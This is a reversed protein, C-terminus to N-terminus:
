NLTNLNLTKTINIFYNNIINAIKKEDVIISNKEVLTIKSSNVGKDSFSPKVKEWFVKNDSVRKEDLNKYFSKKTKRLLNLCLNRQCKYKCWNKFNRNKNFINRLKSRVMIQKRLDKTMFTNNHRLFKKKLPAHKNLEKLFVAEFEGYSERKVKELEIKLTIKFSSVDFTKYSCYIKEIPAGKFGGSKLITCVLKHHDSLGTEFNNSLKFLSKRNTLILDICSPTISQYCTPKKILSSFDYAQMFAELHSNDVSLNFDGIALINEDTQLYYDIILAIRNLFEIVNQSPPKYIGLLLWKRKSQYLEFAMLELDSFM